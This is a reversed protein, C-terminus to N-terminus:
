NYVAGASLPGITKLDIMAPKCLKKLLCGSYAETLSKIPNVNPLLCSCEKKDGVGIIILSLHVPQPIQTSAQAKLAKVRILQGPLVLSATMVSLQIEHLAHTPTHGGFNSAM